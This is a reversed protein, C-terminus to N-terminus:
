SDIDRIINSLNYQMPVDVMIFIQLFFVAIASNLDPMLGIKRTRWLSWTRTVPMLCSSPGKFLFVSSHASGGHVINKEGSLYNRNGLLIRM